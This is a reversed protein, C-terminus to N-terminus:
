RRLTDVVAAADFVERPLVLTAHAASPDIRGHHLAAVLRLMEVTLAVDFLAVDRPPPPEDAALLSQARMRVLGADYDAPSLGLDGVGELAEIAAMAAPTPSSSATWLPGSEAHDYLRRADARVDTFSPWRAAPLRGSDVIRQIAARVAAPDAPHPHAFAPANALLALLGLAVTCPLM